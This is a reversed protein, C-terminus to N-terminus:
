REPAPEGPYGPCFGVLGYFPQIHTHTKLKGHVRLIVSISVTSSLQASQNDEM